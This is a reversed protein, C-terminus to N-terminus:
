DLEVVSQNMENVPNLLKAYIECTCQALAFRPSQRAHSGESRIILRTYFVGENEDEEEEEWWRRSVVRFLVPNNTLSIRM